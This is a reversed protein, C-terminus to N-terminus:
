PVPQVATALTVREPTLGVSQWDVLVFFEPTSLESAPLSLSRTTRGLTLLPNGTVLTARSGSEGVVEVVINGAAASQVRLMRCTHSRWGADM